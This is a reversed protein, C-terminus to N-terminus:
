YAKIRYMIGLELRHTMGDAEKIGCAESFRHARGVYAAFLRLDQDKVPYFELTGVGGVSTRYNRFNGSASVTEYSGKVRLAWKPAFTCLAETTLSRYRVDCAYAAGGRDATAIRLLDIDDREEMYDVFWRLGPLTLQQGLSIVDACYGKAQVQRGVSWRTALIGDAFTGNWNLIYTMPRASAVAQTGDELLANGYEQAFSGNYTNCVMLALEQSPVPHWSVMAGAKFIDMADVFDSYQYIFMPNEDYEFGGWIECLKGASVSWKENFTWGVLMLDTAKSFNDGDMAVNSRNLRHRLRYFLHDGFSGKMELRLQRNRFASTWDGASEAAQWAGAYNIFVNFAETKKELASVKGLLSAYDGDPGGDRTNRGQASAAVAALVAAFVLLIQKKMGIKKM